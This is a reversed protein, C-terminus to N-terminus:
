NRWRVERVGELRRLGEVIAGIRAGRATIGSLEIRDRGPLASPYVSMQRFQVSNTELTAQIAPLTEAGREVVVTVAGARDRRFWRREVPRLGALVLLALATSVLAAGYLGGGSALGIAAVIWISAATTLGRVIQRQFVIAGAGLFGIGSAVQAAVRSPDLEIHQGSLVDAFGHSSTSMFLAAGLGVLAHTRLGASREGREREVGIIAGLVTALVLRLLLEVSSM